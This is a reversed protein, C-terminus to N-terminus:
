DHDTLTLTNRKKDVNEQSGRNEERKMNRQALNRQTLNRKLKSIFEKTLTSIRQGDVRPVNCQEKDRENSDHELNWNTHFRGSQSAVPENDSSAMTAHVPTIDKADDNESSEGSEKVNNTNQVLERIKVGYATHRTLFFTKDQLGDHERNDGSYVISPSKSCDESKELGDESNGDKIESAGEEAVDRDERHIIQLLRRTVDNDLVTSRNSESIRAKNKWISAIKRFTAAKFINRPDEEVEGADGEVERAELVIPDCNDRENEIVSVKIKCKDETTSDDEKRYIRRGISFKSNAELDGTIAEEYERQFEVNHTQKNSHQQGKGKIIADLSKLTKIIAKGTYSDETRVSEKLIVKTERGDTTSVQGASKNEVTRTMVKPDMGKDDNDTSLEECCRDLCGTSLSNERTLNKSRNRTAINRKLIGASDSYRRKPGKKANGLDNDAAQPLAKEKHPKKELLYRIPLPSKKEGNSPIRYQSKDNFNIERFVKGKEVYSIMKDPNRRKINDLVSAILNFGPDVKRDGNGNEKREFLGYNVGKGIGTGILSGCLGGVFAGVVPIPIMLQGVVSGTTGGIFQCGSECVKKKVKTEFEKKDILGMDKAKKAKYLSHSTLALDVMVTIGVGIAAQGLAQAASEIGLTAGSETATETVTIATAKIKDRIAEFESETSGFFRAIERDICVDVAIDVKAMFGVNELKLIMVRCLNNNYKVVYSDVLKTEADAIDGRVMNLVSFLLEIQKRTLICLNLRQTKIFLHTKLIRALAEGVFKFTNNVYLVLPKSCYIVSALSDDGDPGVKIEVITKSFIYCTNSRVIGLALHECKHSNLM